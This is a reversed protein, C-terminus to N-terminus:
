VVRCAVVAIISKPQFMLLVKAANKLTAGTTCLDDVLLVNKDKIVKKVMEQNNGVVDFVDEVNQQRKKGSLTSQFVTRKKRKLCPFYYAQMKKSLTKAMVASQNFGRVAFRSWHLPIPVIFDVSMSSLMTKEFMINALQKCALVDDFSKKLILSKLPDQYNSVAIVKIDKTKTVPLYLSAIQKVSKDCTDCFISDQVLHKNCNRCFSPYFLSSLHTFTKYIVSIGFVWHM